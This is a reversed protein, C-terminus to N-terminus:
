VLSCESHDMIVEELSKLFLSTAGEGMFPPFSTNFVWDQFAALVLTRVIVPVEFQSICEKLRQEIDQPTHHLDLSSLLLAEFDSGPHIATNLQLTTTDCSDLISQLKSQIKDITNDIDEAQLSRKQTHGLEFFRAKNQLNMNLQDLNWLQQLYTRFQSEQPDQGSSESKQRANDFIQQGAVLRENRKELDEIKGYL